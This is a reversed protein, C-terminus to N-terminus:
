TFVALWRRDSAFQNVLLIGQGMSIRGANASRFLEIMVPVKMTSAAHFSSDANLFLTDGTAVDIYAVAAEAGPIRAVRAEIQDRLSDVPQAAALAAGLLFAIV